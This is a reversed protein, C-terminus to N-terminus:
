RIIGIAVNNMTHLVPDLPLTLRLKLAKDKFPSGAGNHHGMVKKLLCSM